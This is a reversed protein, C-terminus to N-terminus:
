KYASAMVVDLSLSKFIESLVALVVLLVSFRGASKLEYNLFIDLKVVINYYINYINVPYGQKINDVLSCAKLCASLELINRGLM